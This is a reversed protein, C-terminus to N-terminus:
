GGKKLTLVVVADFPHHVCYIFRLAAAIAGRLTTRVFRVASHLVTGGGVIVQGRYGVVQWDKRSLYPTLNALSLASRHTPDGHQQTLGFPSQGNPFRLILRGGPKLMTHCADLRAIVDEMVFHEFVDFAAITDFRGAHAEAVAEIEPPLLEVGHAQAAEILEPIIETGAVTAGEAQAFALFEGVGFGIELVNAGSIAAGKTELRYYRARVPTITFHDHWGKWATYRQYADDPAAPQTEATGNGTGPANVADM